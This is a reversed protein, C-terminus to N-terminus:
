NLVQTILPPTVASNVITFRLRGIIQGRVTEVNVRWKGAPLTSKMSYTRFGGDRGGVVPLIIREHDVWEEKSEDYYQWHHVVDLNLSSPAFVSSYAYVSDNPGLKFEDYIKFYSKWDSREQRVVYNNEQDRIISYYLGSHTVSLPIPPILNTFYLTNIVIYISLISIFISKRSDFFKIKCVRMIINLYLVMIGLSLLGSLVFIGAGINHFIIPLMYISGCFVLLFFLSMQFTLRIFHKKFIENALVAFILVLIFPWSVSLDGSRFYFVLFVSLSGGFLFQLGNVLWFHIKSPDEEDGPNNELKHILVMLIAIGLIHGLVWLNEWVQDIRRLTLSDIVFGLLLFFSSVRKEHAGYWDIAKTIGIKSKERFPVM